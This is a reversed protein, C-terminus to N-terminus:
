VGTCCGDDMVPLRGVFLPVNNNYDLACLWQLSVGGHLSHQCHM